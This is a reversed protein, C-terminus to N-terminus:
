YESLDSKLRRIDKSAKDFRPLRKIIIVNEITEDQALAAEAVDFLKISDKEVKKFWEQKYKEINEPADKLAKEINTDTIEISGTQLILIDTEKERVVNPVVQKFNAEKYLAKEEVDICYAKVMNLNINCDKEFKKRDLANSISTGVWTVNKKSGFKKKAGTPDVEKKKSDKEVDSKEVPQKNTINHFVANEIAACNDAVKTLVAMSDNQIKNDFRTTKALAVNNDDLKSEIRKMREEIIDGQVRNEKFGELAEIKIKAINEVIYEMQGSMAIMLMQLMSNSSEKTSAEYAQHRLMKHKWLEEIASNSYDCQECNYLLVGHTTKKHESLEEKRVTKFNCQECELVAFQQNAAKHTPMHKKLEEKTGFQLDCGECDFNHERQSASPGEQTSTEEDPRPENVLDVKEFKNLYLKEEIILELIENYAVNELEKLNHHNEKSITEHTKVHANFDKEDNFEDLCDICGFRVRESDTPKHQRERHEAMTTKSNTVFHCDMCDYELVREELSLSKDMLETTMDELMMSRVLSNNRTSQRPGLVSTHVNSKHKNLTLQTKCSFDCKNCPLSSSRKYKIDARKVTKAGFKKIVEENLTNIEQVCSQVKSGFFPKLFIEVFDEYGHGNVLIRQTTNYLHLVIKDRNSYFVVQSVVCMGNADKGSKIGGVKIVKDGIKCTTESQIENWYRAAPLVATLWAGVSFILTFSTSKKELEFPPRKSGKVLKAKASKDNLEYNFTISDNHYVSSRVQDDITVMDM